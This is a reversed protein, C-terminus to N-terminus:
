MHPRHMALADPSSCAGRIGDIVVAVKIPVVMGVEVTVVFLVLVRVLFGRFLVVVIDVVVLLTTTIGGSDPEVWVTVAHDVAPAILM